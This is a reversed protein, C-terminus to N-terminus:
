VFPEVEGDSGCKHSLILETPPARVSLRALPGPASLESRKHLPPLAVSAALRRCGLLWSRETTSLRGTGRSPHRDDRGCSRAGPRPAPPPERRSPHRLVGAPPDARGLLAKKKRRRKRPAAPAQQQDQPDQPAPPDAQTPAPTARPVVSSTILTAGPRESLRMDLLSPGEYLMGDRRLGERVEEIVRRVRDFEEKTIRREESMQIEKWWRACTTQPITQRGSISVPLWMRLMWTAKLGM